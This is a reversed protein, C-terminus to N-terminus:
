GVRTVPMNRVFGAFGDEDPENHYIYAHAYRARPIILQSSFRAVHVHYSPPLRKPGVFLMLNVTAADQEEDTALSHMWVSSLIASGNPLKRFPSVFKAGDADFFEEHDGGKMIFCRIADFISEDGRLGRQNVVLYYHFAIKALARYYDVSFRFAIRGQVCHVGAERSGTAVYPSDPYLEALLEEYRGHNQEDAYLYMPSNPAPSADQIKQSLSKVTMQPNLRLHHEVDEVDRVVLQDICSANEPDDPSIEVLETHDGYNITGKPRSGGKASSWGKGRKGRGTSKISSHTFRRFFAEPASRILTEEIAGLRNNCGSCIFRFHLDDRFRGFAAPIVHDGEGRDPNITTPCYICTNQNEDSM